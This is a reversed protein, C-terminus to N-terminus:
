VVDANKLPLGSLCQQGSAPLPIIGREAELYRIATLTMRLATKRPEDRQRIADQLDRQLQEKLVM